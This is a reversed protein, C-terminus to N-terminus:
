NWLSRKTEREQKRNITKTVEVTYGNRKAFALAEQQNKFSKVVEDFDNVVKYSKMKSGQLPQTFVYYRNSLAKDLLLQHHDTSIESKTPKGM